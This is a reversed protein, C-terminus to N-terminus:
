PTGKPSLDYEQTISGVFVSGTSAFITSMFLFMAVSIGQIRKDVVVQLMAIVPASWGKTFVYEAFLAGMSLSFSEQQLFILACLPIDLMSKFFSILPKTMIYKDFSSMIIAATINASLSGIFLAMANLGGFLLFDDEYVEFYKTVYTGMTASAM